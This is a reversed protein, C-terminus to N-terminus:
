ARNRGEGDAQCKGPWIYRYVRVRRESAAAASEYRKGVRTRDGKGEDRGTGVMGRVAVMSIGTSYFSCGVASRRETSVSWGGRNNYNQILRLLFVAGGSEDASMSVDSSHYVM